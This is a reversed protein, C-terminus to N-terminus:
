TIEVGEGTVVEGIVWTEIGADTAADRVHQV